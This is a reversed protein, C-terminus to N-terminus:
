ETVTVPYSSIGPAEGFFGALSGCASVTSELTIDLDVTEQDCDLDLAGAGGGVWGYATPDDNCPEVIWGCGVCCHIYAGLSWSCTGDHNDVLALRFQIGSDAMGTIFIDDCTCTRADPDFTFGGTHVNIPGSTFMHCGVWEQNTADWTLTIETARFTLTLEKPFARGACCPTCTNADTPTLHATVTVLHCEDDITATTTFDNFTAVNVDVVYEGPDLGTVCFEGVDGTTGAGVLIDDLYIQVGAGFIPRVDCGTVDTCISGDHCTGECCHCGPSARFM